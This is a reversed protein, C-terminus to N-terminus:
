WRTRKGKKRGRSKEMSVSFFPSSVRRAMVTQCPNGRSPPPLACVRFPHFAVFPRFRPSPAHASVCCYPSNQSAAWYGGSWWSILISGCVRWTMRAACAHWADHSGNRTYCQAFTHVHVFRQARRYRSPDLFRDAEGPARSSATSSHVWSTRKEEIEGRDRERKREGREWKEENRLKETEENRAFVTRLIRYICYRGIRIMRGNRNFRYNTEASNRTVLIPCIDHFWVHICVHM